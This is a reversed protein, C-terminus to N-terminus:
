RTAAERLVEALQAACIRYDFKSVALERANAGMQARRDPDAILRLCADALAETDGVDVAMGCRGDAFWEPIAGVRSAVVPLGCACAEMVVKPAGESLSPCVFVDMAAYRLPLESQRVWGCHVCGTIDVRGMRGDGILLLMAGPVSERIRVFADALVRAGKAVSLATAVCGITPAKPPLGLRRRAHERGYPSCPRFMGTDVGSAIVRVPIESMEGVVTRCKQRLVDNRVVIATSHRLLLRESAGKLRHVQLMRGIRMALHSACRWTEQEDGAVIAVVPKRRFALLALYYTSSPVAFVVVDTNKLSDLYRWLVLLSWLEGLALRFAKRRATRVPLVRLSSRTRFPTAGKKWGAVVPALLTLCECHRALEPLLYPFSGASLYAGDSRYLPRYCCYLVRM